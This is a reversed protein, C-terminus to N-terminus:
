LGLEKKLEAIYVRCLRVKETIRFELKPDREVRFSKIRLALDMDDDYTHYAYQEAMVEDLDRGEFRAIRRAEDEILQDPTNVLCYDVFGVPKDWLILYQQVQMIYDHEAKTEFLPFTKFDWPSKVDRISDPTEIDCEGTMFENERQEKNNTFSEFLSAGLLAISDDEVLIGKKTHKTSIFQRRGYLQESLWDQCYSKAGGSLGEPKNRKELLGYLEADQKDTRKEKLTLAEVKKTQVVTLGGSDKPRSMIKALASARIKFPKM